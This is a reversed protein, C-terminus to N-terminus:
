AGLVAAIDAATINTGFLPCVNSTVFIAELKTPVKQALAILNAKTQTATAFISAFGARVNPNSGDVSGGAIMAQYCNQSAVPLLTYESWVIATNLEAVTISPRFVVGAGPSNLYNAISGHDGSLRAPSANADALIAAKLTQVQAPTM